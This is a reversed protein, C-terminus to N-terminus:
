KQRMYFLLYPTRNRETVGVTERPVRVVVGDDCYFWGEDHWVHCTYHGGHPSRGMHYVVAQLRYVPREQSTFFVSDSWNKVCDSLDLSSPIDINACSKSIQRTLTDFVFRKLHLVLVPPLRDILLQRSIKPSVRETSTLNVVAQKLSSIEESIDLPLFQFPEQVHSDKTGSGKVISKFQGNFLVSIPSPPELLSRSTAVRNKKGVSMWEDEVTQKELLKSEDTLTPLTWKLSERHRLLEEHIGNLILRLFEEADEQDDSHEWCKYVCEPSASTRGSESEGAQVKFVEILELFAALWKYRPRDQIIQDQLNGIINVFPQCLFLPQLVANLYCFNSRNVLGRPATHNISPDVLVKWTFNASRKKKGEGDRKNNKILAPAPLEQESDEEEEPQEHLSLHAFRNEAM